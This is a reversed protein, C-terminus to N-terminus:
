KPRQVQEAKQLVSKPSRAIKELLAQIEAGRTPEIAIRLKKAEAVFAADTMTEDFAEISELADPFQGVYSKPDRVGHRACSRRHSVCTTAREGSPQAYM